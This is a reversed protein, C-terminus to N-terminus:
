ANENEEGKYRREYLKELIKITKIDRENAPLMHLDNRIDDLAQKYGAICGREFDKGM